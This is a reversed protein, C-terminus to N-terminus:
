GPNEGSWLVRMGAMDINSRTVVKERKDRLLATFGGAGFGQFPWLRYCYESSLESRFDALEPVECTQLDFNKCLWEVNKENEQQAFTCTTYLLAGGPGLTHVANALIRRQRKANRDINIRHFCGPNPIGKAPLSQGSCPADVMVLDCLDPLNQAFIASDNRVVVANPIKCRSLNVILQATRKGIVESSVLLKPQLQRSALISKGGPSACLDFVIGGPRLSNLAVTEFVSSFDLCYYHGQQHLEHRGAMAEHSVRDVYAPQWSAPPIVPFLPQEPRPQLWVIAPAKSEGALMADVFQGARDDAFM